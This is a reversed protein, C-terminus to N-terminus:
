TLKIYDLTNPQSSAPPLTWPAEIFENQAILTNIRDSGPVRGNDLRLFLRRKNSRVAFFGLPPSPRYKNNPSEFLFIEVEASLRRFQESLQTM